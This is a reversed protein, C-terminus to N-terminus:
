IYKKVRKLAVDLDNKEIRNTKKKFGHVLYCVGDDVYCLIRYFVGMFGKRYEWLKPKSSPVKELIHSKFLEPLSYKELLDIDDFIKRYAKRNESFVSDLFKVVPYRGSPLKLYEVIM